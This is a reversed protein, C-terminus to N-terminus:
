IVLSQGPSNFRSVPGRFVAQSQACPCMSVHVCPCMSVHVCVCATLTLTTNSYTQNVSDPWLQEAALGNIWALDPLSSGVSSM